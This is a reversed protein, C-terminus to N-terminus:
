VDKKTEFPPTKPKSASGKKNPDTNFPIEKHKGRLIKDVSTHGGCIYARPTSRPPRKKKPIQKRWRNTWVVELISELYARLEKAGDKRTARLIEFTADIGIVQLWGIVDRVVDDFLLQTSVEKPERKAGVAVFDRIMMTINYLLLCLMAQFITAQPTTGILHRLDFTQVVRQFMVEIGWRSRYLTLLDKAPYVDADQLSTVFILPDDKDRTVSIRRVRIRHPNNPKGLWGWEEHFPRNEDDLGERVPCSEDRHFGCSTNFRVVFQDADKALDGLLKFDCFARDGVWLHPRSDLLARVRAVAGPVLPNDAAEGDATAEVAVAQQTALDQVVLLKGGFLNGKLGRTPKLRKTVYKLKKGDFGLTWFGALSKPLPNAVVTSAVGRLRAATECFFGLSLNCPVRKLKGYMAQVTADLSGDEIAHEFAQNASGRHGVTADALLHVFLPFTIDREYSRGRHRQFVGDLFEDCTAFDLLRFAADALPLRRCAELDFSTNM